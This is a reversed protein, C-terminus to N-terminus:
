IASRALERARADAELIAELAADSGADISDLAHEVLAPIRGFAISGALFAEVAVENAASLVAGATGGVRMAREALALAPFRARDPAEFVLSGLAALDLRRRLSPAREPFALALHIPLRMDPVGLQCLSQGDSLEVVAHVSSSPHVLVDLSQCDFLWRAEILELGKNMLTASDITNKPGMSWVPHALAQERSAREIQEAPWTRFPGGSATLIIREVAPDMPMPPTYGRGSVGLLCQWVGSHESDLPLIRAGRQRARAMVIEGAAVLSEKNALAVDIGAELAALVPALGDLGVIAAIVLDAPTQQVLAAAAEPGTFDARGTRGTARGTTRVTTRMATRANPWRARQAELADSRTGSALGVVEFRLGGPQANLEDIVELAQTGVSGTSGLVIVRRIPRDEAM